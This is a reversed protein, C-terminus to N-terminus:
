ALGELAAVSQASPHTLVDLLFDEEVHQVARMLGSERLFTRHVQDGTLRHQPVPHRWHCLVVYGDDRLSSRATIALREVTPLPLYYCVESLVILDFRDAPWDGPLAGQEIRVHPHASLRQKALQVARSDLETALLRAARPALQETLLGTACGPEFVSDFRRPPLSALILARKRQEYWLDSFHWPDDSSAYMEAFDADGFAVERPGLSDAVFIEFPRRFHELFEPRLVAEDGATESLPEVQSRYSLIAEEKKETTTEDLELRIFHADGMAKGPVGWHWYWIPYELLRLGLRRATCAAAEGVAAHDPHRDRRWPVVVCTREDSSGVISGLLCGIDDIRERLRGDPMSHQSLRADPALLGVATVVETRRLRAIDGPRHTSSEPHSAEGASLVIVDTRIGLASTMSLLGGAGLTEDDPHAALLILHDIAGLDLGALDRLLDTRLWESEPTGDTRPDFGRIESRGESVDTV